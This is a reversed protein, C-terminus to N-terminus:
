FSVIASAAGSIAKVSNCRVGIIAEKSDRPRPEQSIAVYLEINQLAKLSGM